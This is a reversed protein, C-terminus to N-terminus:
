AGPAPAGFMRRYLVGLVLMAWPMTWILGIGFPLASLLVLFAVALNLGFVRFWRHTVARRSIEMARWAGIENFAILPITMGYAVALYGRNNLTIPNEPGLASEMQKVVAEYLAIADGTRGAARYAGALNSRVILTNAHNPGLVSQVTKVLAENIALAEATRGAMRYAM